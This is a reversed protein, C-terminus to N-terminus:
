LLQNPPNPNCTNYQLVRESMVYGEFHMCTQTESQRIFKFNCFQGRHMFVGDGSWGPQKCSPNSNLSSCQFIPFEGYANFNGSDYAMM